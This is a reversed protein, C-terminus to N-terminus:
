SFPQRWMLSNRMWVGSFRLWWLIRFTVDNITPSFVETYDQGAVQSYGCCVLRCRFVGNRKVEFVWKCKILRRNKPVDKKKVKRYVKREDMKAFEKAIGARWLKRQFPSPHNFADWYNGPNEFYDKYEEPKLQAMQEETLEGEIVTDGVAFAMDGNAEFSFEGMDSNLRDLMTLQALLSVNAVDRSDTEDPEPEERGTPPEVAVRGAAAASRTQRIQDM